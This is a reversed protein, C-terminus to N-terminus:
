LAEKRFALLLGLIELGLGCLVFVARAVPASLLVIASIVIVWGALMLLM